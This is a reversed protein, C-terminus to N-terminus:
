GDAPGSTVGWGDRRAVLTVAAALAATEARLVSSGLSVRRRTEDWEGPEWGGEPGIAVAHVGSWDDGSGIDAIAVDDPVQLVGVPEDVLVDHTRRCQGAAEGAIRRWRSVVRAATEGRFKVALRASILPVIRTVGIETAKAVAWDGRDGKLPALYITVPTPAPDADVDSVRELGDAVVRALAWDGGGNTVVVEEGERARLVRRLHHEDDARLIPASPDDVRFQALAAVRRPWQDLSM